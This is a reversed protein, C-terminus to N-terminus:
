VRCSQKTGHMDVCDLATPSLENALQWEEPFLFWSCWMNISVIVM